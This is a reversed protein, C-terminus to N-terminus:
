YFCNNTFEMEGTPDYYTGTPLICENIVESGSSRTTGVAPHTCAKDTYVNPVTPCRVCDSGSRYYGVNCSYGNGNGGMCTANDPCKTCGKPGSSSMSASGYYGAVCRLSISRTCTGACSCTATVKKEYGPYSSGYASWTTDSTCNSCTKCCTKLTNSKCFPGTTSSTNTLTYGSQCTACETIYDCGKVSSNCHYFKKLTSCNRGTTQDPQSTYGSPLSTYTYSCTYNGALANGVMFILGAFVPLLSMKRM